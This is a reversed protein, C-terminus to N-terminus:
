KSYKPSNGWRNAGPESDTLLWILMLVPGVVPILNILIWAGSRGVDHLRRVALALFPILTALWWLINVVPVIGFIMNWLVMYWYECRRARGSFDAYHSFFHGLTKGFGMSPNVSNYSSNNNNQGDNSNSGYSRAPAPANVPMAVTSMNRGGYKRLLDQVDIEVERAICIKETGTLNYQSNHVMLGNIHTGNTSHDVYVASGFDDIRIESHFRSASCHDVIYDNSEDRGIKIIKM